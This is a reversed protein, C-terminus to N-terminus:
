RGGSEMPARANRRRRNKRRADYRLCAVTTRRERRYVMGYIGLCHINIMIVRDPGYPIM